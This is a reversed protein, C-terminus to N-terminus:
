APRTIQLIDPGDVGELARFPEENKEAKGEPDAPVNNLGTLFGFLYLLFQPGVRAAVLGSRSDVAVKLGRNALRPRRGVLRRGQGKPSRKRSSQCATAGAAFPGQCM